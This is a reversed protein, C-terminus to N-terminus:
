IETRQIRLGPSVAFRFLLSLLRDLLVALLILPFVGLLILDTAGQGLGQFIFTGLGGAGILAAVATNGVAQISSIRIGTLIVPMAMPLEVSFFLQRGNMGMGRGAMLAGKDVVSLGTFTNRAIPLLAYLTLAILAPASGIGQIGMERLLPFRFSLWSLPAILLGFLALSPITQVSNLFYFITKESNKRRAAVMGLPIGILLSFLVATGALRLHNGIERSVRDSKLAFEMVISLKGMTGSMLFIGLSLVIGGYLAFSLKKMTKDRSLSHLSVALGGAMLWFGSSLSIRGYPMTEDILLASVPGTSYLLLNLLILVALTRLLNYVFSERNNLSLFLLMMLLLAAAALPLSAGADIWSLPTGDDVRNPKFTVLPFLLSAAGLAAGTLSIKDIRM